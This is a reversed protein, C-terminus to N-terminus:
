VRSVLGKGDTVTSPLALPVQAVPRRTSAPPVLTAPNAPFSAVPLPQTQSTALKTTQAGAVQKHWDQLSRPPRSPPAVSSTATAALVGPSAAPVSPATSQRTNTTVHQKQLSKTRNAGSRAAGSSSSSASSSATAGTNATATHTRPNGASSVSNPNKAGRARGGTRGRNRGGRGKGLTTAVPAASIASTVATNLISTMAPAVSGGAAHEEMKAQLMKQIHQIEAINSRSTASLLMEHEAVSVSDLLAAEELEEQMTIDDADEHDDSSADARMLSTSGDLLPNAKTASLLSAIKGQAKNRKIDAVLLLQFCADCCRYDGNLHLLMELNPMRRVLAHM